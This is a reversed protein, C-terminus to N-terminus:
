ETFFYTPIDSKPIALLRCIADIEDTRFYQLSYLKNSVTNPHVGIKEALAKITYGKEAMRGRLRSMDYVYM